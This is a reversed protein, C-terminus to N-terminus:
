TFQNDITCLKAAQFIYKANCYTVQVTMDIRIVSFKALSLKQFPDCSYKVMMVANQMNKNHVATKWYSLQCFSNLEGM